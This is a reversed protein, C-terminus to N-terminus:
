EDAGDVEVRSAAVRVGHEVVAVGLADLTHEL